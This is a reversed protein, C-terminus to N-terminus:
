QRRRQQHASGAHSSSTARRSSPRPRSASPFTMAPNFVDLRGAAGVTPAQASGAGALLGSPVVAVRGHGAVMRASRGDVHAHTRRHADITALTKAQRSNM